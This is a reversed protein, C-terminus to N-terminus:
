ARRVEDITANKVAYPFPPDGIRAAGFAGSRALAVLAAPVRYGKAEIRALARVCAATPSLGQRMLEVAHAAPAFRMMVDGNGTAAVGGVDNDVYAGAGPVAVDGVRGKIKFGLGSTSIGVCLDGARDIAVMGITDHNGESWSLSRKPDAKWAEWRSRAKATM